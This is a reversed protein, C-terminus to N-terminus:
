KDQITRYIYLIHESPLSKGRIMLIAKNKKQEIICNFKHFLYSSHSASLISVLFQLFLYFKNCINMDLPNTTKKTVKMMLVTASIASSNRFCEFLLFMLVALWLYIKIVILNSFKGKIIHFIFLLCSNGQYKTHSM